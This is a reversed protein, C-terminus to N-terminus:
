FIYGRSYLEAWASMIFERFGFSFILFIIVFSMAITLTEGSENGAVADRIFFSEHLAQLNSYFVMGIDYINAPM